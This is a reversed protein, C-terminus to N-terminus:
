EIFIAETVEELRNCFLRLAEGQSAEAYASNDTILATEMEWLQKRVESLQYDGCFQEIVLEGRVVLVQGLRVSKNYFDEYITFPM